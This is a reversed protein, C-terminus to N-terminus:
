MSSPLLSCLWTLVGEWFSKAPQTARGGGRYPHGGEVPLQPLSVVVPPIEARQENLQDFVERMWLPYKLREIYSELRHLELKSEGAEAAEDAYIRAHSGPTIDVDPFMTKIQALIADRRVQTVMKDIARNGPSM